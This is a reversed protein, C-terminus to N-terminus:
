LLIELEAVKMQKESIVELIDSILDLLEGIEKSGKKKLEQLDKQLKEIKEEYLEKAECYGRQKAEIQQKKRVAVVLGFLASASLTDEVVSGSALSKTIDGTSINYKGSVEKTKTRLQEELKAKKTELSNLKEILAESKADYKNKQAIILNKTEKYEKEIKKFVKEYEKAAQEYGEKKGETEVDTIVADIADIISPKRGFPNWGFPNGGFMGGGILSM